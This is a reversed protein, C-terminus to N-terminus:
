RAAEEKHFNIDAVLRRRTSAMVADNDRREDLTSVTADNHYLPHQVRYGSV